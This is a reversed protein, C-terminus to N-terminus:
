SKVKYRSVMEIGKRGMNSLGWMDGYHRVFPSSVNCIVWYLTLSVAIRLWFTFLVAVRLWFTFLAAIRLWFTFSLAIRLWFYVFLSYTALFFILRTVTMLRYTGRDRKIDGYGTVDGGRGGWTPLTAARSYSDGVLWPTM